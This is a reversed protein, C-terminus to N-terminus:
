YSMAAANLLGVAISLTASFIAVAINNEQIDRMLNQDFLRLVSFVSWQVLMAVMGWQALAMPSVNNVAAVSVPIAFGLIAGMFMVAASVNGQKILKVEDHPTMFTYISWFVGLLLLSMGFYVFFHGLTYLYNPLM